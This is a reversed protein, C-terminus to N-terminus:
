SHAGMGHVFTEEAKSHLLIPVVPVCNTDPEKMQFIFHDRRSGRLPLHFISMEASPGRFTPIGFLTQQGRKGPSLGSLLFTMWGACRTRPYMAMSSINKHTSMSISSVRDLTDKSGDKM